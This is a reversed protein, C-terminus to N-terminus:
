KFTFKIGVNGHSIYLNSMANFELGVNKYVPITVSATVAALPAIEGFKTKISLPLNNLRVGNSDVNPTQRVYGGVIGGLSFYGLFDFKPGIYVTGANNNFCDKLYLAGFQLYDTKVTVGLEPHWVFSGDHTIKHPMKGIAYESQDLGHNTVGFGHLTVSTDGTLALALLITGLM